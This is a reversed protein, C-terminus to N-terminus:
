ALYELVVCCAGTSNSYFYLITGAKLRFRTYVYEVGGLTSGSNTSHVWLPNSYVATVAGAPATDTASLSLLCNPASLAAYVIDYDVDAVFSTRQAAQNQFNIVRRPRTQVANIQGSLLDLIGGAIELITAANQLPDDSKRL